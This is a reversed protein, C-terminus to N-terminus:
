SSGGNSTSALLADLADVTEASDFAAFRDAFEKRCAIRRRELREILQGAALMTDASSTPALTTSVGRLHHVHVEADQHMGLNDQLAKLRQVLAKRPAPAYLGGFCELLYRLKKADKRLDHLVEAPTDLAITRGRRIMTRHAKRIRKAILSGLPVTAGDACPEAAPNDLWASWTEVIRAAREGRLAAALAAHEADRQDALHNRIPELSSATDPGLPDTYEPWELQYVDLDRARGTLQGLWGFDERARDRVQDPLVGKANALVARTRRVAVRLDHLFEPDTDDVTGDWNVVIADRLNALVRRFGDIAALDADLKVGPTVSCGALDVGAAGAAIEALGEPSERLGAGEIVGRLEAAPKSYGALEVVDVLQEGIGLEGVHPADYVVAVTTTKRAGNLKTVLTRQASLSVLPILVRVDLLKALRFRLPGPPVDNATRPVGSVVVRAPAGDVGRLVLEGAAPRRDAAFPTTLELRLGAAALRGDFTDLVTRTVTEPEGVEYGERRLAALLAATDIGRGARYTTIGGTM